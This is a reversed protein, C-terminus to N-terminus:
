DLAVTVMCFSFLDRAYARIDVGGDIRTALGEGLIAHTTARPRTGHQSQGCDADDSTQPNPVRWRKFTHVRIHSYRVYKLHNNM